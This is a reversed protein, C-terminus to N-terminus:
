NESYVWLSTTASNKTIYNYKNITMTKSAAPASLDLRAKRPLYYNWNQVVKTEKAEILFYSWMPFVCTGTRVKFFSVSFSIFFYGVLSLGWSHGRGGLSFDHQKCICTHMHKLFLFISTQERQCWRVQWWTFFGLTQDWGILKWSCM